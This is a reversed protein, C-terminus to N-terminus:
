SNLKKSKGIAKILFEWQEDTMKPPFAPLDGLEVKNEECLKKFKEKTM